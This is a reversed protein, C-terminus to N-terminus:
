LTGGNRTVLKVSSYYNKTIKKQCKNAVLNYGSPCKGNTLNKTNTNDYYIEEYEIILRYSNSSTGSLSKIYNTMNVSLNKLAEINANSCSSSNLICDKLSAINYRTVYIHKINMTGTNIIQECFARKSLEEENMNGFEDTVNYLSIDNCNFEIIERNNDIIYKKIYQDMNLSVLFDEIYYTRYLYTTDNYMAHRKENNLLKIFISYIMLLSTTLVIIVIITEVFIFGTKLYKNKM